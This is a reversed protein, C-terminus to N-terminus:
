KSFTTYIVEIASDSYYDEVAELNNEVLSKYYGNLYEGFKSKPYLKLFSEFSAKLDENLKNDDYSFAPTNNAGIMYASAYTKMNSLIMDFFKSGPYKNLFDETSLIRNVMEDYSIAFGGDNYMPENSEMALLTITDKLENNLNNFYKKFYSYDIIPYAMGETSHVRYANKVVTNEYLSLTAKDLKSTDVKKTEHVYADYLPQDLQANFFDNDISAQSEEMNELILTLGESAINSDVLKYYQEFLELSEKPYITTNVITRIEEVFEEDSISITDKPIEESTEEVILNTETSSEIANNTKTEDSKCGILTVSIILILSLLKIYNKM